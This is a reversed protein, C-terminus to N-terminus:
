DVMRVSVEVRVVRPMKWGFPERHLDTSKAIYGYKTKVHLRAKARTPFLMTGTTGNPEWSFYQRFGDLRSKEQWLIAWALRTKSLPEIV